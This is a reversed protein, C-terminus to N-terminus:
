DETVHILRLDNFAALVAPMRYLEPTFLFPRFSGSEFYLLSEAFIGGYLYIHHFDDKLSTRVVTFETVYGPDIEVLPRGTQQLGLEISLTKRRVDVLEERGIPRRFSLFRLTHRAMNTYLPMLLETPISQSEYDPKGFTSDLKKKASLYADGEDFYCACFLRAGQPESLTPKWKEPMTLIRYTAAPLLSSFPASTSRGVQHNRALIEGAKPSSLSGTFCVHWYRPSRISDGVFVTPSGAETGRGVSGVDQPDCLCWTELPQPCIDERTKRRTRTHPESHNGHRIERCPENIRVRRRQAQTFKAKKEKLFKVCLM